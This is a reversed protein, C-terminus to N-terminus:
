HNHAMKPLPGAPLNATSGCPLQLSLEVPKPYECSLDVRGVPTRLTCVRQTGCAVLFHDAEPAMTCLVGSSVEALAVKESGAMLQVTTRPSDPSDADTSFRIDVPPAGTACSADAADRVGLSSRTAVVRAGPPLRLTRPAASGGEVVLDSGQTTLKVHIAGFDPTCSAAITSGATWLTCMNAGSVPGVPEDIGLAPVSLHVSANRGDPALTSTLM